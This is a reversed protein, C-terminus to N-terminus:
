LGEAQSSQEAKGAGGCHFADPAEEVSGGKVCAMRLALKDIYWYAFFEDGFLFAFCPDNRRHRGHLVRSVGSASFACNNSFRNGPHENPRLKGSDTM